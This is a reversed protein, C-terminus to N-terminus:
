LSSEEGQVIVQQTRNGLFNEIWSVAKSLKYLLRGHPVTDFAKAYDMYICEISHGEDLVETWIDLIELLQLQTSRGSIFGYQRNSFM